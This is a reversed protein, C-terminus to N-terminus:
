RITGNPKLSFIWLRGISDVLGQLTTPTTTLSLSAASKQQLLTTARGQRSRVGTFVETTCTAERLCVIDLDDLIENDHEVWLSLRRVLRCLRQRNWRMDTAPSPTPIHALL